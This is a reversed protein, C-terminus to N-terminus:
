PTGAGICYIHTKTRVILDDGIVIPTAQCGADLRNRALLKFEDGAAIVPMQGDQDFFYIRGGAAVPSAWFSGGVRQSWVERGTAVDLCTLFGDDAGLYLRDGLLIPTARKPAHKGYKWAVHSGTVDGTGDFRVALLKDGGDPATVIVRDGARTPRGGANMGGHRVRWVEEGTRADFAQTMAAAPSIMLPRGGSEVILPTSYAKKMDGDTSGWEYQRTTKWRTAGTKKDLAAVYQVDYGDFTLLLLDEFLIPSSGPARWHDCPLDRRQWLIAGSKADLCATGASGFHVYVRGPEAVPTCSAYSNAPHCFAPKPNEFVRVDLVIKGTGRDVAVASLEKGDVTANALWIRDSLVVPSAWARGPIATKWRVNQSESWEVPLNGPAVGGATRFESWDGARAPGCALVIALTVRGFSNM